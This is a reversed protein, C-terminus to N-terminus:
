PRINTKEQVFAILAEDTISGPLDSVYVTVGQPRFSGANLNFQSSM